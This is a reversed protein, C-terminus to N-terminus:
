FPGEWGVGGGQRAPFPPPPCQGLKVRTLWTVLLLLHSQYLGLSISENTKSLAPFQQPKYSDADAAACFPKASAVREPFLLFIIVNGIAAEGEEHLCADCVWFSGRLAPVSNSRVKCIVLSVPELHLHMPGSRTCFHRGRRVPGKPFPKPQPTLPVQIQIGARGHASFLQRAERPSRKRM